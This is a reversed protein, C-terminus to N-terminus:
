NSTWGYIRISAVLENGALRIKDVEVMARFFKSEPVPVGAKWASAVFVQHEFDEWGAERPWFAPVDALERRIRNMENPLQGTVLVAAQERHAAAAALEAGYYDVSFRQNLKHDCVVLNCDRIQDLMADMSPDDPAEIVRVDTAGMMELKFVIPKVAQPDDDIVAVPDLTQDNLRLM